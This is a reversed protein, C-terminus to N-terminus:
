VRQSRALLWLTHNLVVPRTCSREVDLRRGLVLQERLRVVDVLSLLLVILFLRDPLACWMCRWVRRGVVGLVWAAPWSRRM